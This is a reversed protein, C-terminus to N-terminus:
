SDASELEPTNGLGMGNLFLAVAAYYVVLAYLEVRLQPELEVGELADPAEVGALALEAVTLAARYKSPLGDVSRWNPLSELLEDPVGAERALPEHWGVEVPCDQRHATLCILLERIDDDLGSKFRIATGLGAWARAIEDSHLLVGFLPALKGNRNARIQEEASAQNSSMVSPAQM